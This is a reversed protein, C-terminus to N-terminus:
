ERILFSIIKKATKGDGFLERSNYDPIPSSSLISEILRKKNAGVVINWGSEVTEVWETNNRITVCPVRFIYAEKQIGGSDTLIKKANKLLILIDFYSIPDIIHLKNFSSTSIHLKKLIKKTRPHVPFIITKEKSIKLFAQMINKLNEKNDTNEARHITALYYEGPRVKFTDLIISKKEALELSMLLADYMVDGVNIVGPFKRFNITSFDDRIFNENILKGNNIINTFGEKKLNEVARETPCFLINSCHDTLVRNIEEPMGRDYSRLGAEIHAIPIHLKAAALAGALTSNTDGYVLALDPKEKVLVEEAKKIIEGIQWGQSGSGVELNYAPEQIGLEDFFIKNMEFDYHQGTHILVHKITFKSDYKNYEQIARVLPALKIFQPRAGVISAIKM